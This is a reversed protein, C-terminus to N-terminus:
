DRYKKNKLRHFKLRTEGFSILLGIELNYAELHHEHRYM